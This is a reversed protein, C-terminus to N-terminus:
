PTSILREAQTIELLRKVQPGLEPAVYLRRGVRRADTIVTVLAHLGTSDMFSVGSLDLAVKGGNGDLCRVREAFDEASALDLEGSVVLRTVGAEQREQVDLSVTNRVGPNTHIQSGLLDDGSTRPSDLRAEAACLTREPVAM